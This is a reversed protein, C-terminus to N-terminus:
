RAAEELADTLLDTYDRGAYSDAFMGTLRETIAARPPEAAGVPEGMCIVRLYDEIIRSVSRHKWRRGRRARPRTRSLRGPGM